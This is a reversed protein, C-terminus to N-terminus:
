DLNRKIWFAIWAAILSAIGVFVWIVYIKKEDEKASEELRRKQEATLPGESLHKRLEDPSASQPSTRFPIPTPRSPTTRKQPEENKKKESHIIEVANKGDQNEFRGVEVDGEKIITTTGTFLFFTLLLLAPTQKNM